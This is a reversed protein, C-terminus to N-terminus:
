SKSALYKQILQLQATWGGENSTFAAARRELPIQDFGSETITLQTGTPVEQLEFTVLTMPEKAYNIPEVPYPHWRFALVRMPEVREVLIEFPTGAYPQQSKAIEADMKTPVIKGSLRKGVVFEGAFECGFWTGFQKTEAIAQWVRELPARLVIRKEIRDSQQPM